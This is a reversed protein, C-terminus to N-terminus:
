QKKRVEMTYGYEKRMKIIKTYCETCIIQKEGSKQVENEIYPEDLILKNCVSCKKAGFAELIGDCQITGELM